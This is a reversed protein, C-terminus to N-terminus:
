GGFVGCFWDCLADFWNSKVEFNQAPRTELETYTMTNSRSADIYGLEGARRDLEEFRDQQLEATLEEVVVAEESYNANLVVASNFANTALVSCVTVAIILALVVAAYSAIAVKEKTTLKSSSRTKASTTYERQYSMNLTQASPMVDPSSKTIDAEEVLNLAGLKEQISSLSFEQSDQNDQTFPNSSYSTKVDAYVDQQTDQQYGINNWQM